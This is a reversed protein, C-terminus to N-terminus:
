SSMCRKYITDWAPDNYMFICLLVPKNPVAEPGFLGIFPYFWLHCISGTVLGVLPKLNWLRWDINQLGLYVNEHKCLEFVVFHCNYKLYSLQVINKRSKAFYIKNKYCSIKPLNLNFVWPTNYLFGKPALDIHFWSYPSLFQQFTLRSKIVVIFVSWHMNVCWNANFWHLIVESM